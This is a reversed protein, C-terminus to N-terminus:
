GCPREVGRQSPNGHKFLHACRGIVALPCVSLRIISIGGWRARLVLHIVSRLIHGCAYRARHGAIGVRFTHRVRPESKFLSSRKNGTFIAVDDLAVACSRRGVRGCRERVWWVLVDFAACLLVMTNLTGSAGEFPRTILPPALSAGCACERAVPRTIACSARHVRKRADVSAGLALIATWIRVGVARFPTDPARRYWSGAGRWSRSRRGYWAAHRVPAIPGCAAHRAPLAEHLACAVDRLICCMTPRGATVHLLILCARM